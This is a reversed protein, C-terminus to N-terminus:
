KIYGKERSKLKKDAMRGKFVNTANIMLIDVGIKDWVVAHCHGKQHLWSLRENQVLSLKGDRKKVEVLLVLGEPLLLLRDPWGVRGKVELKLCEGGVAEVEEVLYDEIPKELTSVIM